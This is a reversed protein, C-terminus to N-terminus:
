RRATTPVHVTVIWWIQAASWGVVGAVIGWAMPLLGPWDEGGLVIMLGVLLSFKGVYAGIGFPLVLRPSLSDAWAILVTSLTYSATAIGVGIAAGAAGAAGRAAWGVAAAALMVVASAALLAPLHRLRWRRDARGRV